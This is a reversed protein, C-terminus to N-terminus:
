PWYDWGKKWGNYAACGFNGAIFGVALFPLMLVGLVMAVIAKLIPKM